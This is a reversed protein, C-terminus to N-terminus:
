PFRLPILPTDIPLRWHDPDEYTYARDVLNLLSSLENGPNAVAHWVGPPIVILAPRHDGLTFQNTMGHTASAERADYLGIRLTGLNVFIRDTVFRHAHWGSVAGPQLANQFVQEIGLDDVLWDQRFVETLWSGDGKIVHKVERTVVGDIVPVLFQWDATVSQRDKKAGAIFGDAFSFDSVDDAM